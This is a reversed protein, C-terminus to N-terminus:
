NYMCPLMCCSLIMYWIEDSDLLHNLQQYQTTSLWVSKMKVAPMTDKAKYLIDLSYFYAKMGHHKPVPTVTVNGKYHRIGAEKGRHQM